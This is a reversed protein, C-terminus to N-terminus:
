ERGSSTSSLFKKKADELQEAIATEVRRYFAWLKRSDTGEFSEVPVDFLRSLQYTISWSRLEGAPTNGQLVQMTEQDIQKIWYEEGEFQFGLDPFLGELEQDVNVVNSM